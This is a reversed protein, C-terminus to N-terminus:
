NNRAIRTTTVANRATVEQPYGFAIEKTEDDISMPRLQPDVMLYYGKFSGDRINRRYFDVDQNEELHIQLAGRRHSM